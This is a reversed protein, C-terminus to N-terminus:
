RPLSLHTRATIRPHAHDPETTLTSMPLRLFHTIRLYHLHHQKPSQIRLCNRAFCHQFHGTPKRLQTSQDTWLDKYDWAGLSKSKQFHLEGQPTRKKQKSPTAPSADEHLLSFSAQLDQGSRTPIFSPSCTLM